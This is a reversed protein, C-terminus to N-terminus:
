VRARSLITITFRGKRLSEVIHIDILEDKERKGEKLGDWNGGSAGMSRGSDGRRRTKHDRNSSSAFSSGVPLRRKSSSSFSSTIHSALDMLRSANSSQPNVEDPPPSGSSPTSVSPSGPDPPSNMTGTLASYYLRGLTVDTVGPERETVRATESDNRKLESRVILISM